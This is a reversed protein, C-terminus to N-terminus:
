EAERLVAGTRAIWADWTKRTWIVSLGGPVRCWVRDGSTEPLIERVPSRGKTPVWVQGAALPTM